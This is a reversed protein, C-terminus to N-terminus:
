RRLWSTKLQNTMGRARWNPSSAAVAGMGDSVWEGLTKPKSTPTKGYNPSTSNEDKDNDPPIEDEEPENVQQDPM